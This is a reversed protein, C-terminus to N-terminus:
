LLFNSNLKIKSKFASHSTALVTDQPLNNWLSIVSPFFLPLTPLPDQSLDTFLYTTHTDSPLLLILDSAPHRSSQTAPYFATACSYSRSSADLQSFLGALSPLSIMIAPTGSNPQWKRNPFLGKQNEKHKCTLIVLHCAQIIPLDNAIQPQAIDV